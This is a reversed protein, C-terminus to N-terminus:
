MWYARQLKKHISMYQRLMMGLKHALWIMMVTFGIAMLIPFGYYIVQDAFTYVDGKSMMEQSLFVYFYIITEAIGVISMLVVFVWFPLRKLDGEAEGKSYTEEIAQMDKRHKDLNEEVDHLDKEARKFDEKSKCHKKLTEDLNYRNVLIDSELGQIKQRIPNIITQFSDWLNNTIFLLKENIQFKNLKREDTYLTRVDQDIRQKLEKKENEYNM